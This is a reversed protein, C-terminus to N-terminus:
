YYGSGSGSTGATTVFQRASTPFAANVCGATDFQLVAEGFPSGNLGQGGQNFQTYSESAGNAWKRDTVSGSTNGTVTSFHCITNILILEAMEPCDAYSSDLCAGVKCTIGTILLQIATDTTTLTPCMARIQEVTVTPM